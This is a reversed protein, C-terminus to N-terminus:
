IEESAPDLKDKYDGILIGTPDILYKHFNWEVPNVTKGNIKQSTLWQYIPHQNPGKVDIKTTLPFTVGYNKECFSKIEKNAGPEQAGFQNCPFGIIVLKDKYHVYMDQLQKYQPTNGCESAVNVCLVYKGKFSKMELPKGNIDIISFAYFGMDPKTQGILSPQLFILCVLLLYFGSRRM